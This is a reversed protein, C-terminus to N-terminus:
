VKSLPSRSTTTAFPLRMRGCRCEMVPNLKIDFGRCIIIIIIIIIIRKLRKRFDNTEEQLDLDLGYIKPCVFDRM